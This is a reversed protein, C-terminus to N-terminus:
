DNETGGCDIPNCDPEMHDCEESEVNECRIPETVGDGIMRGGCNSCIM